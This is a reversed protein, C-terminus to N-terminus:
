EVKAGSAKILADWKPFDARVNAMFEEPTNGVPTQGQTVMRERVEPQGLVAKLERQLRDIIPRPTGAPAYAGVWIALDVNPVGQETFTALDPMSASRQPGTMALPRIAGGAIRPIASTPSAFSLHLNGNQVDTIAPVDGKYPVHELPLGLDRKLIQGALHGWSAIGWSGYTVRPHQKAWTIMGKLDSYPANTPGVMLVTGYSLQTIPALDKDPNYPLSKAFLIRNNVTTSMTTVMFTYGDPTARVLQQTGVITNAGAVAEVVVNQGLRNGLPEALLRSYIDIAGGPSFPTILRVPKSPFDAQAQATCCFAFAALTSILRTM